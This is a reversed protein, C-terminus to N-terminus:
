KCYDDKLDPADLIRYSKTNFRQLKRAACCSSSYFLSYNYKVNLEDVYSARSSLPGQGESLALVNRQSTSSAMLAASSSLSGAAEFFLKRRNKSAGNENAGRRTSAAENGCRETLM